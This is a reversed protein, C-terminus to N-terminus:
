ELIDRIMHEQVIKGSSFHQFIALKQGFGYVLGKPFVGMKTKYGLFVNKRKLIDHFM